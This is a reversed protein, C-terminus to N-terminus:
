SIKLGKRHARFEYVGIIRRAMAEQSYKELVSERGRAALRAALNKDFHVKLVADALARANRAPVLLGNDRHIILDRASGVDAAAVPLGAAMAEILFGALGDLHSFVTFMDLSALIRPADKRFGLYYLVNDMPRAAEPGPAELRLSGEGLVVFRVKPAQGAVLAAADLLAEHGKEDELPAVAGVLFEEGELRFAKRLLSDGAPGGTFRSFDVGPPVIEIRDEPIGGRILISRVGDSGAVVADISAFPLGGELPSSDAPRSLVRVPVAAAAAAPLGLTASLTDHFHALRCGHAKMARTLSKRVLWGMRGRLRLPLTALGEESAKRLLDSGPETVIYAPVSMKRLERAVVLVQRQSDRWERGADVLFLSV